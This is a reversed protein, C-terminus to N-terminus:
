SHSLYIGTIILVSYMAALLLVPITCSIVHCYTLRDYDIMITLQGCTINTLHKCLNTNFKSYIFIAVPPQMAALVKHIRIATELCVDQM